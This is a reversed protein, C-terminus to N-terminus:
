FSKTSLLLRVLHIKTCEFTDRVHCLNLQKGRIELLYDFQQLVALVVGLVLQTSSIPRLEVNQTVMKPVKPDFTDRVHCIKQPQKMPSLPTRQDSKM